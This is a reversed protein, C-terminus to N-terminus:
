FQSYIISHVFELAVLRTFEAAGENTLHEEDVRVKTDCLQPYTKCDNFLLLPGPPEKRFLTPAQFISPAVVFIPAAGLHRIKTACDRYASEAYPDIFEPRSASVEDALKRRFNEAREPSMAEGARRYGDGKPGLKPNSELAPVDTQSSFFDAARGVNTFQKEFLALHL